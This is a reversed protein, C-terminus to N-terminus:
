SAAVLSGRYLQTGGHLLIWVIDKDAADPLVVSTLVMENKTGDAAAPITVGDSTVRFYGRVASKRTDLNTLPVDNNNDYTKDSLVAGNQDLVVLRAKQGDPADRDWVYLGLDGNRYRALRCDVSNACNRDVGTNAVLPGVGEPLDYAADLRLAAPPASSRGTSWYADNIDYNQQPSADAASSAAAANTPANDDDGATAVIVVAVVLALVLSAAVIGLAM